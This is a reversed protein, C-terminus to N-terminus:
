YSIIPALRDWPNPFRRRRFHPNFISDKHAPPTFYTSFSDAFGSPTESGPFYPM